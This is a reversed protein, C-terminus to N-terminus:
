ATKTSRVIRELADGAARGLVMQHEEFVRVALGDGYLLGIARGRMQIPVVVAEGAPASGLAQHVFELADASVNGSYPLRKSAVDAFTSAAGDLAMQATGIGPRAAGEQRFAVLQGGKIAFFARRRCAAGLHDLLVDIVQDRSGARELKRVTELLRNSSRELEAPDPPPLPAAAAAAAAKVRQTDEDPALAQVAAQAPGANEAQIVESREQQLMQEPIAAAAPATPAVDTPGVGWSDDVDWGDDVSPRKARAEVKAPARAAAAPAPAPETAAPAAAEPEAKKDGKNPVSKNKDAKATRKEAAGGRGKSKRTQETGSVPVREELEGDSSVTPSSVETDQRAETRSDMAAASGYGPETQRSTRGGRRMGEDLLLVDNSGVEAVEVQEPETRPTKSVAPFQKRARRELLVPEALEEEDVVVAPLRAPERPPPQAVFQGSRPALEPPNTPPPPLPRLGPQREPQTEEDPGSRDGGAAAREFARNPAVATPKAGAPTKGGRALPTVVAYYHALGWAIQAQTAVKRIVYSGTFFHIEDIAHQNSPDSMAIVLNQDHDISVPLVRFESAMDPPVLKLLRPAIAGLEADTARQVRLRAVYFDTLTDDDVFNGLVLHEGVTGGHQAAAKLALRLQEVGVLGASVLLSGPDHSV